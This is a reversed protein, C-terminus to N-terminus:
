ALISLRMPAVIMVITVPMMAVPVMAIPIGPVPMRTIPIGTRNYHDGRISPRLGDVWNLDDPASRRQSRMSRALVMRAAPNITLVGAPRFTNRGTKPALSTLRGSIPLAFRGLCMACTGFM